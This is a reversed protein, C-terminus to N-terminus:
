SKIKMSGEIKAKAEEMSEKEKREEKEIEQREKQEKKISDITRDVKDMLKNWERISMESGGIQYTPEGNEIQDLAREKFNQMSKQFSTTNDDKVTKTEVSQRSVRSRVEEIQDSYQKNIHITM